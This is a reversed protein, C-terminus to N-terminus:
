GEERRKKSGKEKERRENMRGSREGSQNRTAWEGGAGGGDGCWRDIGMSHGDSDRVVGVVEERKWLPKTRAKTEERCRTKM